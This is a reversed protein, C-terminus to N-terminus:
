YDLTGQGDLEVAGTECGVLMNLFKNTTKYKYGTGSALGWPKLMVESFTQQFGRLAADLAKDFTANVVGQYFGLEQLLTKTRTVEASSANETLSNYETFAPCSLSQSCYFSNIKMLTTRYVYGTPEAIGWVGLVASAYKRQFRKVAEVDEPGYVGDVALSEGQKENLFTELRKVDEPDNEAGYRIYTRIHPTCVNAVAPQPGYTCLEQKHSVFYDYNSANPDKCGFRTAQSKSQAKATAALPSGFLGFVSFSPTTCSIANAAVDVVCGDLRVWAGGTYHYLALSGEDLGEIEEDTYAYEITVPHDFSDLVTTGDIIAKVDFVTAGIENPKAAPRGLVPLVDGSPLARVQIVLSASAGTVDAPVSVSFTKGSEQVSASGGASVTMSTSTTVSPTADYGCGGTTFTADTSTGANGAADRSVAMYHYTTCAILPSLSVSHATVRPATDAEATTTGYASTLGFAVQTSAAETTNWSITATTSATSSVTVGTPVPPTEDGTTFNWTTTATAGEWFSGSGYTFTTSAVLVYYGTGEELDASPDITFTTSTADQSRTLAPSDLAISEVLSDDASRYIGIPGTSTTVTTTSFTLSLNAAPSVGTANDAPSFTVILSPDSVSNGSAMSVVQAADLAVDYTRIDDMYGHYYANVGSLLVGFRVNTSIRDNGSGTGTSVLNGDVYLKMAGDSKQWTAAVHHWADLTLPSSRITVDPNGIGFLVRNAAWTVGFDNTVGAIEADFLGTGEYWNGNGSGSGNSLPRFWFTVSVASTFSSAIQVYQDSGNFFYSYPDAFGVQPVTSTPTPGGGTGNPTGDNSGGTDLVTAGQTSEDLAWHGVLSAAHAPAAVRAAGATTCALALVAALLYRSRTTM